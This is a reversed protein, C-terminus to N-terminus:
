ARANSDIAKVLAGTGLRLCGTELLALSPIMGAPVQGADLIIVWYRSLYDFHMDHIGAQFVRPHRDNSM